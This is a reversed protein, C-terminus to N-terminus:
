KLPIGFETSKKFLIKKCRIGARIIAAHKSPVNRFTKDSKKNLKAYNRRHSVCLKREM